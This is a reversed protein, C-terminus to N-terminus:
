RRDGSPRRRGADRRRPDALSESRLDASLAALDAPTDVDPPRPGDIAVEGMSSTALLPAAGRDGGAATAAEWLARPLVVPHGPGDEYRARQPRAPDARWATVVARIAAPAVDPQDGLLVVAAATTAPLADLGAALSSSLGRDPDPNVVVDARAAGAIDRAPGDPAVVVVVHLGAARAAGITHALLPRGRLDAGLKAGGFRRAAGAALVVTTVTPDAGDTM